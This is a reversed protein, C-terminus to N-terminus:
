KAAALVRGTLTALPRADVLPVGLSRCEDRVLSFYAWSLRALARQRPTPESRQSRSLMARQVEDLESEVVFVARVRPDEASEASFAPTMWVGEILASHNTELLHAVVVPLGISVQRTAEVFRDLQESGTLDFWPGEMKTFLHLAPHTEPTTVATMALWISDLQLWSCGTSSAIERGSRSKGAGSGGGLLLLQWGQVKTM